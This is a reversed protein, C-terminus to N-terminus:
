GGMRRTSWDYVMFAVKGPKNAFEIKKSRQFGVLFQAFHSGLLNHGLIPDGHGLLGRNLVRDLQHLLLAEQIKRHAAVPLDGVGDRPVVKQAGPDTEAEINLIDRLLPGVSAEGDHSLNDACHDAARNERAAKM